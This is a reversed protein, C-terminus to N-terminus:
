FTNWETANSEFLHDKEWIYARRNSESSLSAWDAQTLYFDGSSIEGTNPESNLAGDNDLLAQLDKLTSPIALSRDPKESLFENCGGCFILIFTSALTFKHNIKKLINM